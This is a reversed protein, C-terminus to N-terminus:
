AHWRRSMSGEVGYGGFSVLVASTRPGRAAGGDERTRRSRRAVFPLDVIHPDNAFGGWLPLRLTRTATAYIRGIQEALAGGGPYAGYIWDWTFNGMAVGAIGVADAALPSPPIDALM